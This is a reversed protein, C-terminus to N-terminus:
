RAAARRRLLEPLNQIIEIHAFRAEPEVFRLVLFRQGDATVGFEARHEDPGRMRAVEFLQRPTGAKLEPETQVPLSWVSGDRQLFIEGGAPSWKAAQVGSQTVRRPSAGGATPVIYVEPSGSSESVFAIWEGDPAFTAGSETAETVAIPRPADEGVTLMWIDVSGTGQLDFLLRRGDTSWDTPGGYTVTKHFIEPPSSGDVAARAIVYDGFASSIFLLGKGDRTFVPILNDGDPTIEARTGGDLDHVSVRYGGNKVTNALARLRGDPSLAPNSFSGRETLAPTINGERDVWLVEKPEGDLGRMLALVGNASVDFAAYGDANVRRINDAITIADGATELSALDFPQAFLVGSREFYLQGDAYTYHNGGHAVIKVTRDSLAVVAALRNASSVAM